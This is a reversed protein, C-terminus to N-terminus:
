ENKFIAKRQILVILIIALSFGGVGAVAITLTDSPAAPATTTPVTTTSTTPSTNSVHPNTGGLYENLNSVGDGDPDLGADNFLPNLYNELEWLDPMFDGDSDESSPNLGLIFEQINTLGDEDLDEAADDALPNLGYMVEWGDPLSDSDSDASYPDLGNAIEWSDYLTDFDSDSEGLPYFDFVEQNGDISYPGYGVWDSWYNGEATSADYWHNVHADTDLGQVLGGNNNVFMNHHVSVNTCGTLYMGYNSNFAIINHMLTTHSGAIYVGEGVNETITNWSIDSYYAGAVYMGRMANGVIRNSTVICYFALEMVIGAYSNLSCDNNQVFIESSDWVSIGNGGNYRCTNNAIMLGVSSEVWIATGLTSDCVNSYIRTDESSFLRIANQSNGTITNRWVLDSLSYALDIGVYCGSCSNDNLETDEADTLRIGSWKSGDCNVNQVLTFNSQIIYVGIQKALSCDSDIITCNSSFAVGVGIVTSSCNLSDLVVNSCNALFVQGHPSSITTDRLSFYFTLPRGNVLNGTVNKVYSAYTELPAGGAFVGDNTFTNDIVNMSWSTAFLIGYDASDVFKNQKISVEGGLTLDFGRKNEAIECGTINVTSASLEFGYLVNKSIVANEVIVSQSQDVYVGSADNHDFHSDSIQCDTCWRLYAGTESYSLNQNSLKVNSCNVLIAQGIGGDYNKGDLSILLELPLGNVLNTQQIITEYDAVSSLQFSFGDDTLTNNEVVVNNTHVDIGHANSWLTNNAVICSQGYVGIGWGDNEFITNNFATCNDASFLLGNNCDQISCSRVIAKSTTRIEIGLGWAECYVREIVATGAAVSSIQLGRISESGSGKLWCDRIVFYKTTGLIIIAPGDENTINWGELIYPMGPNGTGSVAYFALATDNRIDISDHQTYGSLTMAGVPSESNNRPDLHLPRLWVFSSLLLILCVTFVFISKGRSLL